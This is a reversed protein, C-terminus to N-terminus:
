FIPKYTNIIPKIGKEKFYDIIVDYQKKDCSLFKTHRTYVGNEGNETYEWMLSEPYDVWGDYILVDRYFYKSYLGRKREPTFFMNVAKDYQAYSGNKFGSYTVKSKTIMGFDGIQIITIKQGQRIKATEFQHQIDIPETLIRYLAEKITPNEIAQIVGADFRLNMSEISEILHLRFLDFSISVITEPTCYENNVFIEDIVTMLNIAAAKNAEAEEDAIGKNGEYNDAVKSESDVEYTYRAYSFGEPNIVLKLEDGCYIAVCKTNYWEVTEREEASMRNFDMMTQIRYDDTAGGGMQELFSFDTILHQIFLDYLHESLYVRRAVRCNERKHDAYYDDDKESLNSVKNAVLRVNMVWMDCDESKYGAEIEAAEEARRKEVIEAERREIEMQKMREQYEREKREAEAKEFAALDIRFQESITHEAVTEDRQEYEYKNVINSIHYSGYFNVDFYDSYYDSNNYNYSEVFRYVYEAIAKVEVSERDWPSSKMLVDISNYDSRVSWKCMPFRSRIHKRIIAAIEKTDNIHYKEYNNGIEDTRTMQFLNYQESEKKSEKKIEECNELSRAFAMREETQKAYWMKQKGSWRFGLEKMQALVESSPKSDFRIEIGNKENNITITTM